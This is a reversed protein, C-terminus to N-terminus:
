VWLRLEDLLAQEFATDRRTADDALRQAEERDVILAYM